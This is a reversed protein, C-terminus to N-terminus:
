ESNKKSHYMMVEVLHSWQNVTACRNMMFIFLQFQSVM